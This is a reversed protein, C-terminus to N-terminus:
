VSPFGAATAAALDKQIREIAESLEYGALECAEEKDRLRHREDNLIRAQECIKVTRSHIIKLMWRVKDAQRADVCVDTAGGQLISALWQQAEVFDRNDNEKRCGLEWMEWEARFAGADARAEEREMHDHLAKLTNLRRDIELFAAQLEQGAAM